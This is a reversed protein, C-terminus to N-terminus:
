RKEFSIGIVEILIGLGIMLLGGPTAPAAFLTVAGIAILAAAILRRPKRPLRM